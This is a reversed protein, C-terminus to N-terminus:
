LDVEEIEDEGWDSSLTDSSDAELYSPDFIGVSPGTRTSRCLPCSHRKGLRVYRLMCNTHFDHGCPLRTVRRGGLRCLCISCERVEEGEGRQEPYSLFLVRRGPFLCAFRPTASMQPYTHERLIVFFYWRAFASGSPADERPPPPTHARTSNKPLPLSFHQASFESSTACCWGRHVFYAVVDLPDADGSEHLLQVVFHLGADFVHTCGCIQARM